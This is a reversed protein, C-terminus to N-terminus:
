PRLLTSPYSRRTSWSRPPPGSGLPPLSNESSTPVRGLDSAPPEVGSSSKSKSEETISSQVTYLKPVGSTSFLPLFPETKHTLSMANSCYSNTAPRQDQPNRAPQPAFSVSRPPPASQNGSPYQISQARSQETPAVSPISSQSATNRVKAALDRVFSCEDTTHAGGCVSCGNKPPYPCNAAVHGPQGCNYCTRVSNM